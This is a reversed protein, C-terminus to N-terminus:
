LNGNSKLKDCKELTGNGNLKVAQIAFLFDVALVVNEFSHLAPYEKDTMAKSFLHWLEDITKPVTLLELLFSGLGFFSEALKVHKDPMLV